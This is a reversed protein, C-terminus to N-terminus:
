PRGGDGSLDLLLNVQLTPWAQQSGHLRLDVRIARPVREPWPWQTLWGTAKGLPTTEYEATNPRLDARPKLM